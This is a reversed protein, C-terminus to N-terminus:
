TGPRDSSASRLNFCACNYVRPLRTVLATGYRLPFAITPIFSLVSSPFNLLGFSLKVAGVFFNWCEYTCLVAIGLM